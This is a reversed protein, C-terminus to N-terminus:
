EKMHKTAQLIMGEAMGKMEMIARTQARTRGVPKYAPFKVKVPNPLKKGDGDKTFTVEIKNTPM